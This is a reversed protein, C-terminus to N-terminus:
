PLGMLLERLKWFSANEAGSAALTVLLQKVAELSPGQLLPSALLKIVSPLLMDALATGCDPHTALCGELLNTCALTVTLDEDSLLHSQSQIVELVHHVDDPQLQM